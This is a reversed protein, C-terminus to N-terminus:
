TCSPNEYVGFNLLVSFFFLFLISFCVLLFFFFFGGLGGPWGVWSALRGAWDALGGRGAWREGCLGGGGWALGLRWGSGGEDWEERTRGRDLDPCGGIGDAGWAGGCGASGWREERGVGGGGIWDPDPGFGDSGGRRMVPAAGGSRFLM